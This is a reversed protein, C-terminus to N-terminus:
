VYRRWAESEAASKVAAARTALFRRLYRELFVADALRGLAGLPSEYAFADRMVTVDGSSEFFHDHDFSRFAGRVMSDRFHRPRDFASVRATLTQRVGLHRASWTVSDGPGVLGSTVGGVAREDTHGTSAVHLDVSRALDFVREIPAAIATTLEILPM